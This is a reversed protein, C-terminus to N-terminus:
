SKRYLIDRFKVVDDDFGMNNCVDEFRNSMMLIQFLMSFMGCETGKYQRRIKNTKYAMKSKQKPHLQELELKKSKMFVSIERPPSMAVSDYYYIGFNRRKPDLGIYLTIWHQGSANHKDTNFVIGVRKIGKTWVEKLNLKCMEQVICTGSSEDKSAFDVPFVGVFMYTPDSEEYQKMVNLIDYTNLWETPNSKWSSPKVPKFSKELKQKENSHKIFPQEIWCTENSGCKSDFKKKINSWLKLKQKKPLIDIKDNHSSNYLKAILVLLEYSFCSNSTTKVSPSCHSQNLSSADM